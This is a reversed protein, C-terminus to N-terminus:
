PWRERERAKISAGVDVRGAEIEMVIGRRKDVGSYQIATERKTTTSLLAYEVSPWVCPCLPSPPPLTLSGRM